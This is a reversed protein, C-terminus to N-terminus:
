FQGISKIGNMGFILWVFHSPRVKLRWVSAAGGRQQDVISEGALGNAESPIDFYDNVHETVHETVTM